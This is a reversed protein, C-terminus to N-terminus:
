GAPAPVASADLKEKFPIDGQRLHRVGNKVVIEGKSNFTLSPRAGSLKYTETGVLKCDPDVVAYTFTDKGSQVLVHLNNEKDLQPQPESFGILSAVPIAGLNKFQDSDTVTVFLRLKGERRTKIIGYRRVEPAGAPDGKKKPVGFQRGWLQAGRQIHLPVTRSDASFKWEPVRVTASVTYSGPTNLEFFPDIEFRRTAAMGTEIKFTGPVSVASKRPLIYGDGRAVSLSLWQTDDGLEVTQGSYNSIKVGIKVKEGPLYYQEEVLTEVVLLQARAVTPLVLVILFFGLRVMNM